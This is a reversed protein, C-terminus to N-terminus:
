FTVLIDELIKYYISNELININDDRTSYDV